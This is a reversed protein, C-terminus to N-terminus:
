PLHRPADQSHHLIRQILVTSGEIRYFIRHRRHVMCRVTKGYEPHAQGSKPYQRLLDFAANLGRTYQSAVEEGFQDASFEDIRALDRRAAVSLKVEVVGPAASPM